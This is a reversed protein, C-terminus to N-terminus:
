RRRAARRRGAGRSWRLLRLHFPVAPASHTISGLSVADAGLGRYSRLTTPLIGGSLEIWVGRGGARARAARVIARARRPPANDILLADAGADVAALADPRSQVEVEIPRRPGFARRLREVSEPIPRLARHTSKVLIGSALDLRHPQGGGHVVAAKELARLGPLTKRTAYVRTGGPGGAIRVANRTATAIGSLHMVLNLVSREIALIRALDGELRLVPTGRAVSRGDRVLPRIRVGGIRGLEVAAALGSVVCRREALVRASARVPGPLLARTTIDEHARDEALARRLLASTGGPLRGKSSAVPPSRM